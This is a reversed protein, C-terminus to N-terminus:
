GGLGREAELLADWLRNEEAKLETLADPSAKAKRMLRYVTRANEYALRAERLRDHRAQEEDTPPRTPLQRIRM